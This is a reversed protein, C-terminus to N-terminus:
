RAGAADLRRLLLSALALYDLAEDPTDGIDVEHGRPNRIGTVAGAFIFKFGKQEDSESDSSLSNLAILPSGENFVEMMLANGTKGRVGSIRKVETEIYKFAEFVAQEWHGDDFLTRVKTPFDPHINRSEFPHAAGAESAEDADDVASPAADQPPQTNVTPPVTSRVIREFQDLGENV